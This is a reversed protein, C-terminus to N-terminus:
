TGLPRGKQTAAHGRRVQYASLSERPSSDLWVDGLVRGFTLLQSLNSADGIPLWLTGHQDISATRLSERAAVGGPERLEPAWCQEDAGDGCLRVNTRITVDVTLTDGDHVAVVKCPLALGAPPVRM